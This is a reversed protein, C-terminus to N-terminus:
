RADAEATVTAPVSAEPARAESRLPRASASLAALVGFMFWYQRSDEFSGFFGHYVIAGVITGIAAAKLRGTAADDGRRPIASRTLAVVLFVFPVLGLLGLQGAVSLWMNHSEMRQAKVEKAMGPRWHETTVLARAHTTEAVLTGVGAGHIPHKAFTNAASRWVSVRGSTEFSLDIPGMRVDGTGRPVLLFVTILAMVAAVGAGAVLLTGERLPKV